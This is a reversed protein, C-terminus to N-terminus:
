KEIKHKRGFLHWKKHIPCLRNEQVYMKEGFPRLRPDRKYFAKNKKCYNLTKREMRRITRLKSRQEYSLVSCFEKEYKGNLGKMEKELSNIIKEQKKLASESAGHKTMNELVFKEQNYQEYKLELEENYKKDITDKCKQQDPSLELVNYLTARNNYMYDMLDVCKSQMCNECSENAFIPSSILILAFILVLKKM